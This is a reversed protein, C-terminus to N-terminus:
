SGRHRCHAPKRDGLTALNRSLARRHHPALATATHASRLSASTDHRASTESRTHMLLSVVRLMFTRPLHLVAPPPPHNVPPHRTITATATIRLGSKWFEGKSPSLRGFDRLSDMVLLVIVHLAISMGHLGM